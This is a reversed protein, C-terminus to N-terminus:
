LVMKKNTLLMDKNLCAIRRNCTFKFSRDQVPRKKRRSHFRRTPAPGFQADLEFQLEQIKYDLFDRREELACLLEEQQEDTLKELAALEENTFFEKAM